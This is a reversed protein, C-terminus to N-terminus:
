ILGASRLQEAENLQSAKRGTARDQCLPQAGRNCHRPDCNKIAAVLPLPHFSSQVGSMSRPRGHVNQQGISLPAQAPSDVQAGGADEDTGSTEAQAFTLLNVQRKGDIEAGHGLQMTARSHHRVDGSASGAEHHISEGGSASRTRFSLTGSRGDVGNIGMRKLM